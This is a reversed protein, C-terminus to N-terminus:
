FRGLILPVGKVSQAPKKKIRFDVFAFERESKRKM